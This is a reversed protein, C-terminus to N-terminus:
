VVEGTVNIIEVNTTCNTTREMVHSLWRTLNDFELWLTTFITGVVAVLLNRSAHPLIPGNLIPREELVVKTKNRPVNINDTPHDFM